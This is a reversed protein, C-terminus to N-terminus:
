NNKKLYPVGTKKNKEVRYGDPLAIPKADDPPNRSFFRIKRRQNSKLIIVKEYLTYEGYKFKKGNKKKSDHIIKKDSLALMKQEEKSDFILGSVEKKIKKAIKKHIGYKKTLEKITLNKLEELSEIGAEFLLLSIYEDISSVDKFINMRYTSNDTKKDNEEKSYISYKTEIEHIISKIQRKNIGKIKTLNEKTCERLKDISNIGEDYLILALNNDISEFDKFPDISNINEDQQKGDKSKKPIKDKQKRTITLPKEDGQKEEPTTERTEKKIKKATKRNIGKIKTLEKITAKKLSEISTYGNRYLIQATKNDISQLEQFETIEEPTEAPEEKQTTEEFATIEETKEEPTSELDYIREPIVEDTRFENEVVVETFIIEDESQVEMFKADGEVEIKDVDEIQKVGCATCYVASQEIQSGCKDCTKFGSLIPQIDSESEVKFDIKEETPVIEWEVILDDDSKEEKCFDESKIEVFFPKAIGINEIEFLDENEKFFSIESEKNAIQASELEEIISVEKDDSRKHITIRPELDYVGKKNGSAYLNIKISKIDRYKKNLHKRLSKLYKDKIQNSEEPIEDLFARLSYKKKGYSKKNNDM